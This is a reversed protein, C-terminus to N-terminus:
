IPTCYVNVSGKELYPNTTDAFPQALPVLGSRTIAHLTYGRAALHELLAEPRDGSRTLAAPNYEIILKPKNALTQGMGKLASMEGGEIDIKIIDARGIGAEQMFGDLTIAPVESREANEQVITSHCGTSGTVHYFPVRGERDTIAAGYVFVNGYRATNKELLNRNESDAEFAYVYGKKGVHEAALRTFYGIHAGIDIVIMGPRLLQRFLRTTQPEYRGTLMELKWKWSYKPPFSVGRISAYLDVLLSVAHKLIYRVPGYYLVNQCFRM